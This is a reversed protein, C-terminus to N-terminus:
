PTVYIEEEKVTDIPIHDSQSGEGAARAEQVSETWKFDIIRKDEKGFTFTLASGGDVKRPGCYVTDKEYIEAYRVLPADEDVKILETNVTYTGSKDWSHTAGKVYWKGSHRGVNNVTIVIKAKLDPLGVTKMAARLTEGSANQTFQDLVNKMVNNVDKVRNETSYPGQASLLGEKVVGEFDAIKKGKTQKKIAKKGSASPTNGAKKKKLNGMTGLLERQADFLKQNAISIKYDEPYQPNEMGDTKVNIRQELMEGIQKIAKQTDKHQFFGHASVGTMRELCDHATITVRSGGVSYTETYEKIKMTVNGSLNGRLGHKITAEDDVKGSFDWYQNVITVNLNSIGDEVDNLTWSEVLKTIDKGAVTIVFDPQWKYTM